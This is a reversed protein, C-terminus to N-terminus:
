GTSQRGKRRAATAGPGVRGGPQLADVPAPQRVEYLSCADSSADGRVVVTRSISPASPRSVAALADSTLATRRRKARSFWGSTTDGSSRGIARRRMASAFWIRSSAARRRRQIYIRSCGGAHRRRVHPGSGLTRTPMRRRELSVVTTSRCILLRVALPRLLFCASARPARSRWRSCSPLAGSSLFRGLSSRSYALGRVRM